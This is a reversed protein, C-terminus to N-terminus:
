KSKKEPKLDNGMIKRYRAEDVGIAVVRVTDGKAVHQRWKTIRAPYKEFKNAVDENCNVQYSISMIDENVAYYQQNLYLNDGGSIKKLEVDVEKYLSDLNTNWSLNEFSMLFAGKYQFPKVNEYWYVDKTASLKAIAKRLIEEDAFSIRSWDVPKSVSKFKEFLAPNFSYSLGENTLYGCHLNLTLTKKLVGANYLKLTYHYDCKDEETFELDWNNQIEKMFDVDKCMFTGLDKQIPLMQYNHMPVGVLIWDGKSFDIDSLVKDAYSFSIHALLVLLVLIKKM